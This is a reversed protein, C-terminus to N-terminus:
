TGCTELRLKSNFAPSRLAMQSTVKVVLSDVTDNWFRKQNELKSNSKSENMDSDMYFSSATRSGIKNHSEQSIQSICNRSSSQIVPQGGHVPLSYGEHLSSDLVSRFM